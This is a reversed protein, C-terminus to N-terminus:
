VSIASASHVRVKVSRPHQHTSVGPRQALSEDPSTNDEPVVRLGDKVTGKPVLGAWLLPCLLLREM